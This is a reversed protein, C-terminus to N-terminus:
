GDGRGTEERDSPEPMLGGRGKVTEALGDGRGTEERDSPEPM